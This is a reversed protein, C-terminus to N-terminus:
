TGAAGNSRLRAVSAQEKWRQVNVGVVLLWLTLSLEGLAAPILLYPPGRVWPFPLYRFQQDRLV